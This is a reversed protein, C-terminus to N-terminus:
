LHIKIPLEGDIDVISLDIETRYVPVSNWAYLAFFSGQLWRDLSGKDSSNIKKVKNLYINFWENRIKKHNGRTFAQVPIMLTLCEMLIGYADVVIM